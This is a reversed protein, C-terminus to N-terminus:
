LFIEKQHVKGRPVHGSRRAQDVLQQGAGRHAYLAQGPSVHRNWHRQFIEVLSRNRALSGPVAHLMVRQRKRQQFYRGVISPLISSLWTETVRDVYRPIVYRPRHFPGLVEHLADIFIACDEQAAEELFVRVYGGARDGLHIRGARPVLDAEWLAELVARGIALTLSRENWPQRSKKLPPFGGRSSTKAELTRIPDARYPQGIRWLERALLRRGARQLMDSNLLSVSQELGEPGLETFAAHVHGVGKEIVGDDTIGFLTQHKAKFRRYDDLGKSFEPAICVVDWNNALKDPQQPDLRISRGRLQNVTMSTTVTTLDVLVNIKNADWGEGLLGRTGVLCRTLGEQFLDTILAVYVRPCWDRGRGRVVHFGSEDVTELAVDRARQTLWAEAASCFRDVLDDDV